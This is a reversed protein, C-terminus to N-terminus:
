GPASAYITEDELWAGTCDRLLQLSWLLKSPLTCETPRPLGVIGQAASHMKYATTVWRYRALCLVNQLGQYGLLVKRQLTYETPRPFGVIGQAAAHM